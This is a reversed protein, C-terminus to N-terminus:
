EEGFKLMIFKDQYSTCLGMIRVARKLIPLLTIAYVRM